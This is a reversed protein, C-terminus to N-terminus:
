EILFIEKWEKAMKSFFEYRIMRAEEEVTRGTLKVKEMVNCSLQQLPIDYRNCLEKVFIADDLSAQGRIGHEIHLAMLNLKYKEKLSILIRFLCVSDAGGSLAIMIREGPYIMKQQIM